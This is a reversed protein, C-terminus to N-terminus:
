RWTRILEETDRGLRGVDVTSSRDFRATGLADLLPAAARLESDAVARVHMYQARQGTAQHLFSRLTRSLAAGAQEDTLEADRHRRNISAVTRAFRYRLVRAHLDRVAPIARLRASPMTAVFVAVYWFIVSLLLALGLVLWWPSYGPPGSVFRLLDDPM